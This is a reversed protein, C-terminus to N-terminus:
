LIEKKIIQNFFLNINKRQEDPTELKNFLNRFKASNSYGKVFWAVHKRAIRTCTQSNYFKYLEEM